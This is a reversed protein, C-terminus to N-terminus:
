VPINSLPWPELSHEWSWLKGLGCLDRDPGAASLALCQAGCLGAQHPQKQGLGGGQGGPTGSM